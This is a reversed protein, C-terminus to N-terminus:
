EQELVTKIRSLMKKRDRINRVYAGKGISEMYDRMEDVTMDEIPKPKNENADSEVIYDHDEFWKILWPDNTAGVGKVFKVSARIGTFDAVKTKITAM